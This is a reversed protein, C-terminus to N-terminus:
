GIRAAEFLSIWVKRAVRSLLYGLDACPLGKCRLSSIIGIWLRAKWTYHMTLYGRLSSFSSWNKGVVMITLAMSNPFIWGDWQGGRAPTGVSGIEVLPSLM